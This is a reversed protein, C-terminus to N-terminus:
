SSHDLSWVRLALGTKLAILAHLLDSRDRYAKRGRWWDTWSHLAMHDFEDWVLLLTECQEDQNWGWVSYIRRAGFLLDDPASLEVIWARMEQWTASEESAPTDGVTLGDEGAAVTTNFPNHRQFIVVPILGLLMLAAFVAIMFALNSFSLAQAGGACIVLPLFLAVFLTTMGVEWALWFGLAPAPRLTLPPSISGTRAILEPKPQIREPAFPHRLPHEDSDDDAMGNDMETQQSLQLGDQRASRSPGVLERLWLAPLVVGYRFVLIGLALGGLSALGLLIDTDVGWQRLLAYPVLFAGVIGVILAAVTLAVIQRFKAKTNEPVPFPWVANLEGWGSRLSRLLRRAM